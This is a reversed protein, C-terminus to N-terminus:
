VGSHARLDNLVSRLLTRMDDGKKWCALGFSLQPRVNGHAEPLVMGDQESAIKDLLARADSESTEPLVVLFVNDEWRAIQDVWRLRDRLFRSVALVVPDTSLPQVSSMTQMDLFVLAVSLPNHYRRSRSIHLDLAQSVARKNPLGTLDDTLKLDEVQQRLRANEEALQEQASVDAMVLLRQGREGRLVERTVWRQNAPLQYISPETALAQQVAQPLQEASKGLLEPAATALLETMLRNVWIVQGDEDLLLLGVPLHELLARDMQTVDNPQM